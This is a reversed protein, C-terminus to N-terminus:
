QLARKVTSKGPPWLIFKLSDGNKGFGKSRPAKIQCAMPLLHTLPGSTEFSELHCPDARTLSKQNVGM